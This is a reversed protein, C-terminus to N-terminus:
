RGTRPRPSCLIWGFVGSLPMEPSVDAHLANGAVLRPGGGGTFHEEGLRRVPLLSFRAFRLLEEPGLERLLRFGARVPPFPSFFAGLAGCRVREWLAYLRRWAEGDRPALEDLSAATEDIELAIAACSTDTGPHAVAIRSTLWRVGWRELELRRIHPSALTLPRQEVGVRELVQGALPLHRDQLPSRFRALSRTM